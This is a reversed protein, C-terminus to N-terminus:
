CSWQEAFGLCILGAALLHFAELIDARREYCVTLGRFRTSGVRGVMVPWLAHQGGHLLDSPQPALALDTGCLRALQLRKHLQVVLRHDRESACLFRELLSKGPSLYGIVNEGNHDTIIKYNM